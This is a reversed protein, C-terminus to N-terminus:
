PCMELAAVQGYTLLRDSHGVLTWRSWRRAPILVRGVPAGEEGGGFVGKEKEGGVLETSVPCIVTCRDLRSSRTRRSVAM